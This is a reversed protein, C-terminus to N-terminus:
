TSQELVGVFDGRVRMVFIIGLDDDDDDDGDEGNNGRGVELAGTTDSVRGTPDQLSAVVRADGDPPVEIAIVHGFPLGQPRAWSPAFLTAARATPFSSLSDLNPDRPAVLGVFYRGDKAGRHINDPFGPLNTVLTEVDGEREGQLWVRRVAYEGTEVFLLSAEDFALTVGNAFVLDRVLVRGIGSDLDCEIIRGNGAHEIIEYRSAELEDAFWPADELRPAFKTSADSFYAKTGDRSVSVDDAFGVDVGEVNACVSEFNRGDWVLVGPLLADAIYLKESATNYDLGLPRGGTNAVVRTTSSADSTDYRIEVLAGDSTGTLLVITGQLGERTRTREDRVLTLAEPGDRAGGLAIEDASSLASNRAFRGTLGASIPATWVEPAIQPVSVVRHAIIVVLVVVFVAGASRYRLTHMTMM